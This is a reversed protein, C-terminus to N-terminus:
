KDDSKKSPTSYNHLEIKTLNDFKHAFPDNIQWERCFLKYHAFSSEKTSFIQHYPYTEIFKPKEKIIKNGIHWFKESIRLVHTKHATKYPIKLFNPDVDCIKLMEETQYHYLKAFNVIHYNGKTQGNKDTTEESTKAIYFNDLSDPYLGLLNKLNKYILEKYVNDYELFLVFKGDACRNTIGFATITPKFTKSLTFVYNPNDYQIILRTGNLQQFKPKLDSVTIQLEKLDKQINM